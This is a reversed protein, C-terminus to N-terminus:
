AEEDRTLGLKSVNKASVWEFYSCSTGEEKNTSSWRPCSLYWRTSKVSWKPYVPVGEPWDDVGLCKCYHLDAVGKAQTDLYTYLHQRYQDPRPLHSISHNAIRHKLEAVAMRLVDAASSARDPGFSAPALKHCVQGLSLDVLYKRKGKPKAFEEGCHSCSLFTKKRKKMNIPINQEFYNQICPLCGIAHSCDAVVPSVMVKSCVMCTILENIGNTHFDATTAAM